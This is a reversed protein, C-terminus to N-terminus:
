GRGRRTVVEGLANRYPHLKVVRPGPALPGTRLKPGALDMAVLCTTGVSAAAQRVHRAMARWAAVDDHACNIRAINMGCQM